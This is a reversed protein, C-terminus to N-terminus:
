IEPLQLAGHLGAPPAASPFWYMQVTMPWQGAISQSSLVSSSPPSSSPSESVSSRGSSAESEDVADILHLSSCVGPPSCWGTSPNTSTWPHPLPHPPYHPTPPTSKHEATSSSSGGLFMLSWKRERQRKLLTLHETKKVDLVQKMEM